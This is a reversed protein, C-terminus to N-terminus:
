IFGFSFSSPNILLDRIARLCVSTFQISILGEALCLQPVVNRQVLIRASKLIRITIQPVTALKPTRSLCVSLFFPSILWLNNFSIFFINLLHIFLYINITGTRPTLLYKLGIQWKEGLKAVFVFDLIVNCKKKYLINILYKINM